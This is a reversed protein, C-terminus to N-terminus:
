GEIRRSYAGTVVTQLCEELWYPGDEYLMSCLADESAATEAKSSLYRGGAGLSRRTFM